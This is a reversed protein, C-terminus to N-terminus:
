QSCVPRYDQDPVLEKWEARTLERGAVRCARRSWADPSVEWRTMAGSDGLTFLRRGDPTFRTALGDPPAPLTGVARRSEVDWLIVTGDSSSTALMRGDPSFEANYVEHEHGRLPAGVRKHRAVDWLQTYGEFAGVALLRGDPSFRAWSAGDGARNPLRAIVRLSRGDRLETASPGLAIAMTAGDPSFSLHFPRDPTRPATQVKGTELELTRLDGALDAVAVRDGDPSFAMAQVPSDFGRLPPRVRQGTMSDRLGVTGTKGTVAIVRGDPSFALAWVPGEAIGPLKRLGRLTHADYVGV